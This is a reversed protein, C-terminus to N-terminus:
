GVGEWLFIYISCGTGRYKESCAICPIFRYSRSYNHKNPRPYLKILFINRSGVVRTLSECARLLTCNDWNMRCKRNCWCPLIGFSGHYKWRCGSGSCWRLRLRMPARACAYYHRCFRKRRVSGTSQTSGQSSIFVQLCDM